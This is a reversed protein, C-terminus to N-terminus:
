LDPECLILIGLYIGIIKNTLSYVFVIKYVNILTFAKISSTLMGTSVVISAEITSTERSIHKFIVTQTASTHQSYNNTAYSLKDSRKDSM